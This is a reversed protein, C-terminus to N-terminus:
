FPVDTPLDSDDDETFNDSPAPAEVTSPATYNVQVTEESSATAEAAGVYTDPISSQYGARPIPTYEPMNSASDNGSNQLMDALEASTVERIVQSYCDPMKTNFRALINDYSAVVNRGVAEISYTTNIDGAAGHRKIRFVFDSPDPYRNFVDQEMQPEFKMTRDWFQIEGRGEDAGINYVPIFLKTQVRIGKSCAPCGKECCHVYGTYEASKIYHAQAVLMDKISRYLFIVDAYDGDNVLRFLGHYRDDNFENVSKFAM